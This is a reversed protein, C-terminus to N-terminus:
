ALAGTELRVRLTALQNSVSADYVTDGVRIVIGGLLSADVKSSLRIKKGTLKELSATLAREDDASLPLATRASVGLVGLEKDRLEQYANVIVPFLDERRKEVLVQLFQLTVSDVKGTFLSRFVDAKKERSVIPSEFIGALERSGKISESILSIDQDVRDMVGAGAAREGLAQAYRRSITIESM